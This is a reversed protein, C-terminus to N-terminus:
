VWRPADDLPEGGSEDEDEDIEDEDSPSFGEASAAQRLVWLQALQNVGSAARRAEAELPEFARSKADQLLVKAMAGVMRPLHMCRNFVALAERQAAPGVAPASLDLEALADINPAQTALLPGARGLIGRLEVGPPTHEVVLGPLRRLARVVADRLGNLDTPEDPSPM